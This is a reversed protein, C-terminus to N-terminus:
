TKIRRTLKNFYRRILYSRILSVATFWGVIQLNQAMPLVIDYAKFIVLQSIFSVIIGIVINAITEILSMLRTQM